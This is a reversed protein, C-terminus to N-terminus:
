GGIHPHMLYLLREVQGLGFLHISPVIKGAPQHRLDTVHTGGQHVINQSTGIHCGHHSLTYGKLSTKTHCSQTIIISQLRGHLRIGFPPLGAVTEDIALGARDPHPVGNAPFPGIGVARQLARQRPHNDIRGCEARRYMGADPAHIQKNRTRAPCELKRIEAVFINRQPHHQRPRRLNPQIPVAVIPLYLYDRRNGLLTSGIGPLLNGLSPLGSNVPPKSGSM